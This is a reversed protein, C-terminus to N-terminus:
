LFFRLQQKYAHHVSHWSNQFNQWANSDLPLCTYNIHNNIAQKQHHKKKVNEFMMKNTKKENIRNKTANKKNTVLDYATPFSYRMLANLNGSKSNIM